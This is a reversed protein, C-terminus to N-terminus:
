RHLFLVMQRFVESSEESGCLTTNFRSYGGDLIVRGNGLKGSLVLPEDGAWAEVKLRYDMPFSVTTRGSPIEHQEHFVANSIEKQNVVATQSDMDGWCSKGFFAATLQDSESVFPWNDAGIYLGGGNNVFSELALINEPSLHSRASSFVLVIDYQQLSDDPISDRFTLNFAEASPPLPFERGLVIGQQGFLPLCAAFFLYCLFNRGSM